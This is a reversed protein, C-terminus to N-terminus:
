LKQKLANYDPLKWVRSKIQRISTLMDGSLQAAFLGTLQSIRTNCYEIARAVDRNDTLDSGELSHYSNLLAIVEAREQKLLKRYTLPIKM